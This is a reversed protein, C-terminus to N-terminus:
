ELRADLWNAYDCEDGRDAFDAVLALQASNGLEVTIPVPPDGGRVVPSLFAQQWEEGRRLYVRFIVSGRRVAADDIAVTARFHHFRGAIEDVDLRYTLRAATFMGIGKAYNRGAVQLSEGLVNRDRRYPWSIELYPEHHYDLITCDSLYLCRAKLSRLHAVESRDRGILEIGDATRICLQEADAILSKAVLLSGDRLGVVLKGSKASTTVSDGFRIAAVRKESLQLMEESSDLKVEIQQKETLHVVQGLWRDGSTLHLLDSKEGDIPKHNLLQDLFKTRRTLGTPAHLLIARVQRRLFTVKGFLKTTAALTDGALEWSPQGTWADALVLRSGDALLLESRDSNMRPTSWRTMKQLQVQRSQGAVQFEIEGDATASLFTALAPPQGVLLLPEDAQTAPCACLFFAILLGRSQRPIKERCLKM